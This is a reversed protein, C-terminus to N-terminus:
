NLSLSSSRDFFFDLFDKPVSIEGDMMCGLQDHQERLWQLAARQEEISLTALLEIFSPACQADKKPSDM